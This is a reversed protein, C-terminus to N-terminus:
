VRRCFFLFFQNALNTFICIFALQFFMFYTLLFCMFSLFFYGEVREKKFGYKDYPYLKVFGHRDPKEMNINITDGAKM